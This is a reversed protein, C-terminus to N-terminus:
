NRDPEQECDEGVGNKTSPNGRRLESRIGPSASWQNRSFTAVLEAQIQGGILNTPRLRRSLASSPRKHGSRAARWPQPTCNRAVSSEISVRRTRHWGQEEGLAEAEVEEPRSFPSGGWTWM